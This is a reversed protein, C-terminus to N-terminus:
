KEKTNTFDKNLENIQKQKKEHEENKTDQFKQLAYQVNQNVVELIKEM